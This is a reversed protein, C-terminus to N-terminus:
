YSTLVLGACRNPLAGEHAGLVCVSIHSQSVRVPMDAARSSTPTEEIRVEFQMCLQVGFQMCLQVSSAM